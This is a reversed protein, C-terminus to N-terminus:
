KVAQLVVHLERIINRLHKKKWDLGPDKAFEPYPILSQQIIFWDSYEEGEYAKHGAGGLEYLRKCFYMYTDETFFLRHHPNDWADDSSGYPTVCILFGGPKLMHWLNNFIRFIDARDVHELVHSALITDFGTPIPSITALDAVIDAGTRPDKDLNVWGEMKNGACGINLRNPGLYLGFMQEFREEQTIDCHMNCM